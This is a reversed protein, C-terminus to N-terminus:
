CLIERLMVLALRRDYEITLARMTTEDEAEYSKDRSYNAYLHIMAYMGRSARELDAWFTKTGMMERFHVVQDLFYERNFIVKEEMKVKEATFNKSKRKERKQTQGM